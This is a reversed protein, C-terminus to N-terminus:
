SDLKLFGTRGKGAVSLRDYQLRMMVVNIGSGIGLLGISDNPSFHGSEIAVAMSVPLAASGTNGLWPFTAFDLAPDIKLRELLLRRHAAGVQHGVTKSPPQGDALEALFDEYCQAAATIGEMMLQESDTDMLPQMGASVADDRDSRCLEHHATKALATCNTLRSGAALDRHCLLVAASASGITLSAVATKIQQRTLQSQSLLTAITTDVLSRGNETGVVLGARIQGLEILAAMHWMGSLIGLCANSVDLVMCRENLRLEHHVRCATAPELHDRCVSGHILAGIHAPDFEAAALALRGSQISIESPLTRADWFRREVIGTMLELRGKPLRLRVYLEALRHEIENSTVVEDPISYGISAVVVHEFKM